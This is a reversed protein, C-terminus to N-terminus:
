DLVADVLTRPRGPRGVPRGVAGSPVLGRASRKKERVEDSAESKLMCTGTRGYCRPLAALWLLSSKALPWDGLSAAAVVCYTTALTSISYTALRMM